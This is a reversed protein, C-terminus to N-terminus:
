PVFQNFIPWIPWFRCFFSFHVVWRPWLCVTSTRCVHMVSSSLSCLWATAKVPVQAATNKKAWFTSFVLAIKRSWVLLSEQQHPGHLLAGEQDAEISKTYEHLLVIRLKLLLGRALHRAMWAPLDACLNPHQCFPPLNVMTWKSMGGVNNHYLGPQFHAVYRKLLTTCTVCISSCLRFTYPKGLHVVWWLWLCFTCRRYIDM